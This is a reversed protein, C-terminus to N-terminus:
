GEGGGSLANDIAWQQVSKHGGKELWALMQLQRGRAYTRPDGKSHAECWGLLEPQTVECDKLRVNFEAAPM